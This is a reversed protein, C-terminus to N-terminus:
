DGGNVPLVYSAPTIPFNVDKVIPLVFKGNVATQGAVGPLREMEVQTISSGGLLHSKLDVLARM